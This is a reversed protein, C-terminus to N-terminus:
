GTVCSTLRGRASSFSSLMDVSLPGGFSSTAEGM